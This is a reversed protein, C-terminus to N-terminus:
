PHGVAVVHDTDALAVGDQEGAGEDGAVLVGDVPHDVSEGPPAGVHDVLAVGLHVDGPM